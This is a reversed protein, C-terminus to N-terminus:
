ARLKAGRAAVIQHIHHQFGISLKTGYRRRLEDQPVLGAPWTRPVLMKRRLDDPLVPVPVTMEFRLTTPHGVARLDRVRTGDVDIADFRTGCRTCAFDVLDGRDLPCRYLSTVFSELTTERNSVM